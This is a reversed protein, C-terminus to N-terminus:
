AGRSKKEDIGSRGERAALAAFVEGPAVDNAAWLVLLHFLVDASEAVLGAKDELAGALAAEVAEEGFKKACQAPGRGLLKATYSVSPDGGKRSLITSYLRALVAADSSAVNQAQPDAM